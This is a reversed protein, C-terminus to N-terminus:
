SGSELDQYKKRIADEQEKFSQDVKKCRIQVEQLFNTWERERTDRSAVLTKEVEDTESHELIRGLMSEAVQLNAVLSTSTNSNTSTTLQPLGLDRLESVRELCSFINEVERDGRKEEFERLFHKVEGQLFPRHNFLRSHIEQIDEFGARNTASM